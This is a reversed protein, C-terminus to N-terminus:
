RVKHGLFRLIEVIGSSQADSNGLSRLSAVDWHRVQKNNYSASLLGKGDPTFVLNNILGPHGQWEKVVNGIRMNWIVIHGPSCGSAIYRGDLSCQISWPYVGFTTLLIWRAIEM